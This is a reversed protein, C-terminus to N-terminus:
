LTSVMFELMEPSFGFTRWDLLTQSMIKYTKSVGWVIWYQYEKYMAPLFPEVLYYVRKLIKQELIWRDIVNQEDELSYDTSM